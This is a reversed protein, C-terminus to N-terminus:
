TRRRGEKVPPFLPQGGVFIGDKERAARVKHGNVVVTRKLCARLHSLFGWRNRTTEQGCRPCPQYGYENRHGTDSNSRRPM